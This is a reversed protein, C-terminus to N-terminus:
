IRQSTNQKTSRNEHSLIAATHRGLNEHVAKQGFNSEKQPEPKFQELLADIVESNAVPNEDEFEVVIADFKGKRMTKLITAADKKAAQKIEKSSLDKLNDHKKEVLDTALAKSFIGVNNLDHSPNTALLNQYEDREIHDGTANIATNATNAIAGFVGFFQSLASIAKSSNGEKLEVKPAVQATAFEDNIAARVASHYEVLHEAQEPSVGYQQSVKEFVSAKTAAM